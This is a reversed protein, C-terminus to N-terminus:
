RQDEVVIGYAINAAAIKLYYKGKRGRIYSTDMGGNATNAVLSVPKGSPDYVTISFYSAAAM